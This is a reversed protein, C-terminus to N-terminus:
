KQHQKVSLLLEDVLGALDTENLREGCDCVVVDCELKIREVKKVLEGVETARHKTHIADREDFLEKLEGIDYHRGVVENFHEKLEEELSPRPPNQNNTM